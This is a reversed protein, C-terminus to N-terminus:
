QVTITRQGASVGNVAFKITWVGRSPFSTNGWWDSLAYFVPPTIKFGYPQELGNPDFTTVTIVDGPKVNAVTVGISFVSGSAVASVDPVPDEMQLINTLAPQQLLSTMITTPAQHAYIPPAAWMGAKSSDISNKNCDKVEVHLHPYTSCGSSGVVGLKQGAVVAEGVTVVISDKKMHGYITFFGNKHRLVVHNWPQSAEGGTCSTNRDFNGDTVEVVTGAASAYVPFDNDMYRFNPVDIDVGAHSDYTVAQSGINGIYDMTGPSKPNDDFYNTVNWDQYETGGFPWALMLDSALCSAGSPATAMMVAATLPGGDNGANRQASMQLNQVDQASELNGACNQYAFLSAGIGAIILARTKKM